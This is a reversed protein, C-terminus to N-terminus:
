FTALPARTNVYAIPTALTANSCSHLVGLYTVFNRMLLFNLNSFMIIKFNSRSSITFMLVHRLILILWLYRFHTCQELKTIHRSSAGGRGLADKNCGSVTGVLCVHCDTRAM